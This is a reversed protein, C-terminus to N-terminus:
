LTGLVDILTFFCSCDIITIKFFVTFLYITLILANEILFLNKVSTYYLNLHPNKEYETCWLINKLIKPWM